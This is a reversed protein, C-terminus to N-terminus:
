GARFHATRFSIIGRGGLSYILYYKGGFEFYDSCEPEREDPSEYINGVERWDDGDSSVLHALCGRGAKLDTTTVFM